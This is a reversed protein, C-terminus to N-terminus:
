NVVPAFVELCVLGAKTIQQRRNEAFFKSCVREAVFKLHASCCVEELICDSEALSCPSCHARNWDGVCFTLNTNLKFHLLLNINFIKKKLNQQIQNIYIYFFQGKIMLQKNEHIYNNGKGNFTLGYNYNIVNTITVKQEM